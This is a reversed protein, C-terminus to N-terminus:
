AGTAMEELEFRVLDDYPVHQHQVDKADLLDVV